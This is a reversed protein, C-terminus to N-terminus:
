TFPVFLGKKVESVLNKNTASIVQLDISVPVSSGVKYFRKNQLVQLLKVQMDLPLEGIEDLFITGGNAIEFYGAKGKALAGTFAGGVYGFLESEFLSAPIASCNVEVFPKGPRCFQHIEYALKSKGTGSEGTILINSNTRTAKYSLEKIKNLADSNGVLSDMFSPPLESQRQPFSLYVKEMEEITNNRQKLLAEYESADIM